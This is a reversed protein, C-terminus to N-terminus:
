SEGIIYSESILKMTEQDFYEHLEVNAIYPVEKDSEILEEIYDVEETVENYAITLHYYKM